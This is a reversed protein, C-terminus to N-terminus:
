KTNCSNGIAVDDIPISIEQTALTELLVKKYM